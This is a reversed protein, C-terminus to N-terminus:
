FNIGFIAQLIWEFLKEFCITFPNQYTLPMSVPLTDSWESEGGLEDKAMVRISYGGDQNWTYSAEPTDLWDSFNGDGWDWMYYIHDGDSDTTSTTYTYETGTAGSTAGEPKTPKNPRQNNIPAFKILLADSSPNGWRGTRGAVIFGGDQTNLIYSGVQIGEEEFLINYHTNGENDVGVICVDDKTGMYGEFNVNVCVTHRNHASVMGWSNDRNTGGLTKNWVMNGTADTKVLWVDYSGAGFSRTNGCLIYGGDITQCCGRVKSWDHKDGGYTNDWEKNGESDTKILLLDGDDNSQTWGALLYGSDSTVALSNVEDTGDSYSYIQEWVINGKTDFKILLVDSSTYSYAKYGGAVYGDDVEVIMWPYLGYVPDQNYYNRYWETRGTNDVKWLYGVPEYSGFV